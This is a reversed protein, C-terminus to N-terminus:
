MAISRPWKYDTPKVMFLMTSKDLESYKDKGSPLESVIFSDSNIVINIVINIM